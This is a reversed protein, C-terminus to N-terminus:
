VSGKRQGARALALKSGDRSTMTEGYANKQVMQGISVVQAARDGGLMGVGDSLCM